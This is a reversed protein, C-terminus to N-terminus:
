PRASPAPAPVAPAGSPPVPFAAGAAAAAPLAARVRPGPLLRGIDEHARRVEARAEPAALISALAEREAPDAVGVVRWVPGGLALMARATRAEARSRRLRAR